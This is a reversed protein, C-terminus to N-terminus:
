RRRDRRKSFVVRAVTGEGERSEIVLTAGLTGALARVLPLGMGFGGGKRRRRAEDPRAAALANAIERDSMGAGNDRVEIATRGDLRLQTAVEVKGGAATFKVANGLLNLLIQRV